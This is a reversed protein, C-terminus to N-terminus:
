RCGTRAEGQCRKPLDAGPPKPLPMVQQRGSFHTSAKGAIAPRGPLGRRQGSLSCASLPYSECPAVLMEPPSSDLIANCASADLAVVPQSPMSPHDLARMGPEGRVALQAHAELTVDVGM